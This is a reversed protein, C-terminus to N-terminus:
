GPPLRREAGAAMQNVNKAEPTPQDSSPEAPTVGGSSKRNDLTGGRPRRSAALFLIPVVIVLLAIAILYGM